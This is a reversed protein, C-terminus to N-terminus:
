NNKIKFLELKEKLNREELQLNITKLISIYTIRESKFNELKEFLQRKTTFITSNKTRTELNERNILETLQVILLSLIFLLEQVGNSKKYLEEDNIVLYKEILILYKNEYTHLVRLLTQIDEVEKEKKQYDEINDILERLKKLVVEPSQDLLNKIYISVNSLNM